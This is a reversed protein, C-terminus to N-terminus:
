EERGGKVREYAQDVLLVVGLTMWGAPPWALWAGYALAMTGAIGPGATM